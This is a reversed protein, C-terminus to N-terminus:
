QCDIQGTMTGRSKREAIHMTVSAMYKFDGQFDVLGNDENTVGVSACNDSFGGV